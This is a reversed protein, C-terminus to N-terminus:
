FEFRSHFLVSFLVGHKAFEALSSAADIRSWYDTSKLMDALSALTDSQLIVARSDDANINLM